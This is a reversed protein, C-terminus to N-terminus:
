SIRLAEFRTCRGFLVVGFLNWVNAERRNVTGIPMVCDLSAQLSTPISRRCVKIPTGGFNDSLRAHTVRKESLLRLWKTQNWCQLGYAFWGDSYSM